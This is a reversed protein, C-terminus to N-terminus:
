LQWIQLQLISWKVVKECGKYIPLDVRLIPLPLKAIFVLWCHSITQAVKPSPGLDLTWHFLAIRNSSLWLNSGSGKSSPGLGFLSLHISFKCPVKKSPFDIPEFGFFHAQFPSSMIHLILICALIWILTWSLSEIKSWILGFQNRPIQVRSGDDLTTRLIPLPLQRWPMECYKLCFAM